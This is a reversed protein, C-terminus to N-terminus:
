QEIFRPLIRLNSGRFIPPPLPVPPLLELRTPPPILGPSVACCHEINQLQIYTRSGPICPLSAPPKSGRGEM